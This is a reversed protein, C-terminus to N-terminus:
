PHYLVALVLGFFAGFFFFILALFSGLFYLASCGLFCPLFYCFVVGLLGFFSLRFVFLLCLIFCTFCGRLFGFLYPKCGYFFGGQEALPPLLVAGCLPTFFAGFFARRLLAFSFLFLEL